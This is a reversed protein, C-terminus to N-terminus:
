KILFYLKCATCMKDSPKGSNDCKCHSHIATFLKGRKKDNRLRDIKSILTKIGEYSDTGMSQTIEDVQVSLM